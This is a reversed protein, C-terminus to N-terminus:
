DRRPRYLLSRRRFGLAASPMRQGGIRLPRKQSLTAMAMLPKARQRLPSHQRQNSRKYAGFRGM